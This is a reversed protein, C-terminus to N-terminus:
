FFYRGELGAMIFAVSYVFLIKRCITYVHESKKNIKLGDSRMGHINDNQM